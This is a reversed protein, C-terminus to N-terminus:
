ASFGPSHRFQRLAYRLDQALGDIWQVGNMEFIEERVLTVNGFQRRAALYAEDATLGSRIHREVLLELHADMEHRTEVDLRRRAWAYRLRSLFNVRRRGKTM